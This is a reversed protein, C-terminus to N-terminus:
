CQAGVISGAINLRMYLSLHTWLKTATGTNSPTQNISGNSSKRDLNYDTEEKSLTKYGVAPRPHIIELFFHMKFINEIVINHVSITM